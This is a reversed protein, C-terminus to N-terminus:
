IFITNGDGFNGGGIKAGIEVGQLKPIDAKKREQILSPQLLLKNVLAIEKEKEKLKKRHRQISVISATVAIVVVFGVVGASAGIIETTHDEKREEVKSKPLDIVKLQGSILYIPGQQSM